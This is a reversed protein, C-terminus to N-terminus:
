EIEVDDMDQPEDGAKVALSFLWDSQKEIELQEFEAESVYILLYDVELSFDSAIDKEELKEKLKMNVSNDYEGLAMEYQLQAEEKFLNELDSELKDRLFEGNQIYKDLVDDGYMSVRDDYLEKSWKEGEPTGTLYLDKGYKLYDGEKLLGELKTVLEQEKLMEAEYEAISKGNYIYEKDVYTCNAAIAFLRNEECKVFADYLTASIQKGNWETIAMEMNDKDAWVVESDVLINPSQEDTSDLVNNETDDAIPPNEIDDSIPPNEIDDSIPPNVNHWVNFGVIAIVAMAALSTVYGAYMKRAKIADNEKIRRLVDNAMENYNKM